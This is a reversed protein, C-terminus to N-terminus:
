ESRESVEGEKDELMAVAAQIEGRVLDVHPLQKCTDEGLTFIIAFKQGFLGLWEIGDEGNCSMAATAMARAYSNRVLILVNEREEDTVDKGMFIANSRGVSKDEDLYVEFRGGTIKVLGRKELTKPSYKSMSALSKLKELLTRLLNIDFNGTIVGKDVLWKNPGKLAEISEENGKNEDKSFLLERFTPAKIPTDEQV